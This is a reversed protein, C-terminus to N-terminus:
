GLPRVWINRFRVLSGHDQLRIPLKDAHSAYPPRSGHAVPGIIEVNDQVLVGNHFLTVRAPRTLRGAGDFRPARFVIDYSQWEGPPRSANVLPPYQGYVAGAQGDAYTVNDYSDLVQIEYREMLFVGSNGRDQGKSTPPTPTRWEIHIQADGFAQKTQIEGTGPRVELAGDVIAWPAPKGDPATWQAASKGDFLVIADAPVSSNTPAPGPNVVRPVPRTEDHPPWREVLARASQAAGANPLAILIAVVATLCRM